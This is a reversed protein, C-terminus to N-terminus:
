GSHRSTDAAFQRATQRCLSALLEQYQSRVLEWRYPVYDETAREVMTQRLEPHEYLEILAAAFSEPREPDCLLVAGPRFMSRIAVTDSAIIPRQMWAQEYAKTPLVLEAFGDTRYPIIGADGHLVFDVIHEAPGTESFRVHDAVGLAEALSKIQPLYEGRGMIDLRLRPASPLALALARVATDLGNREAVTGYYMLIFPGDYGPTLSPPPCRRAAPFLQPDASNLLVTLKHDPVGRAKLREEFPWGVTIVHNAFTTSIREQLSSLHYLLSRLRGSSKVAMLEPSPDQIQLVVKAGLIRPIFAAFVLFDPMNHVIIVHYPHRLHQWTVAVGALVMFWVWSLITVPLPSGFGRSFPVRDTIVGNCVEHSTEGRDRLCIVHTEYEADVAAGAMRRVSTDFPYYDYTISVVRLQTM